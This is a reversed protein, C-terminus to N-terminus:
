LYDAFLEKSPRPVPEAITERDRQFTTADGSGASDCVVRQVMPHRILLGARSNRWRSGSM